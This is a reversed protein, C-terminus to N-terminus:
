LSTTGLRMSHTRSPLRQFIWRSCTRSAGLPETGCNIFGRGYFFPMLFARLFQSQLEDVSPSGVGKGWDAPCGFGPSGCSFRRHQVGSRYTATFYFLIDNQKM